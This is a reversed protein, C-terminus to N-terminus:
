VTRAPAAPIIPAPIIPQCRLPTTSASVKILPEIAPNTEMVAAQLETVVGIAIRIPATPPIVISKTVLQISCQPISSPTSATARWPNAPAQPVKATPNNLSKSIKFM